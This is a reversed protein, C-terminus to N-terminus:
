PFCVAAILISGLSFLIGFILCAIYGNPRRMKFNKAEVFFKPDRVSYVIEYSRGVKYESIRTESYSQTFFVLGTRAISKYRIGNVVHEFVPDYSIEFDDTKTKIERLTAMATKHEALKSCGYLGFIGVPFLFFVSVFLLVFCILGFTSESVDIDGNRASELGM